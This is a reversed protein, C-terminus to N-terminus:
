SEPSVVEWRCPGVASRRGPSQAGAERFPRGRVPERLSPESLPQPPSPLLHSGFTEHHSLLFNGSFSPFTHFSCFLWCSRDSRPVEAGFRPPALGCAAPELPARGQSVRVCVAPSERPAIATALPSPACLHGRRTRCRLEPPRLHWPPWPQQTGTERPCSVSM